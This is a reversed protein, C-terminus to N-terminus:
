PKRAYITLVLGDLCREVREVSFGAERVLKLTDRDLHCGGAVRKWVPTAKAQAWAIPRREMEVHELLRLEGGQKLVRRAEAFAREPDPITCFALTAAVADFSEEEFPLEEASGVVLEVPFRAARAREGARKLMAEDPDIGVLREVGDPYLPLNKGTGVGLELVRGRLRRLLDRRMGRLGLSELPAMLPDYVRGFLGGAFRTL